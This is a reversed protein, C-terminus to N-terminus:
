SKARKLELSALLLAPVYWFLRWHLTDIFIGNVLLGIYGAFLALTLPTSISNRISKLSKIIVLTIFAILLGLGIFGNEKLVRLYTNHASPTITVGVSSAVEASTSAERLKSILITKEEQTITKEGIRVEAVKLQEELSIEEFSGPGSGSFSVEGSQWAPLRGQLDYYQLFTFRERALNFFPPYIFIAVSSVFISGLLVASLKKQLWFLKWYFAMVILLAVLMNVLAGRSLAFFIAVYLINVSLLRLFTPKNIFRILLYIFAPILFPGAVNPDKFLGKARGYQLLGEMYINFTYFSVFGMIMATASIFSAIIYAKWLKSLIETFYAINKLFFYALILFSTVAVWFLAKESRNAYLQLLNFAGFALVTKDAYDLSPVVRKVLLYIGGVLIASLMLIDTPPPEIQIFLLLFSLVALSSSLGLLYYKNVNNSLKM